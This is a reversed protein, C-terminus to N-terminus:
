NLCNGSDVLRHNFLVLYNTMAEVLEPLLEPIEQESDVSLKFFLSLTDSDEREKGPVLSIITNFSLEKELPMDMYQIVAGLRKARSLYTSMSFPQNYICLVGLRLLEIAADELEEDSQSLNIKYKSLLSPVEIISDGEENVSVRFVKSEESYLNIYDL